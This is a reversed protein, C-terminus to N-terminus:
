EPNGFLEDEAWLHAAREAEGPSPYLDSWHEPDAESTPAWRWGLPTQWIWCTGAPTQVTVMKNADGFHDPGPLGGLRGPRAPPAFGDATYTWGPGVELGFGFPIAQSLRRKGRGRAEEVLAQGAARAEEESPWVSKVRAGSVLAWRVLGAAEAARAQRFQERADHYDSLTLGLADALLQRLVLPIGGSRGPRPDPLGRERAWRRIRPLWTTPIRM